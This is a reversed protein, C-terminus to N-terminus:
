HAAQQRHFLVMDTTPPAAGLQRLLTVIQGRHYSSHNVLHRLLQGLPAEFPDGATNRYAVVSDLASEPLSGIFESQSAQVDRFTAEIRDQPFSAWEDPMGLPSVGRWRALWIWEAGLLHLLTERVSPYSSGLDRTLQEPDLTAVSELVRDNAWRNYTYLDRIDAIRSM